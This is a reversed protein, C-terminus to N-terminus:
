NYIAAVFRLIIIRSVLAVSNVFEIRSIYRVPFIHDVRKIDMKWITRANASIINRLAAQFFFLKSL